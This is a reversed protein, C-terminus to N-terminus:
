WCLLYHQKPILLGIFHLLYRAFVIYALLRLERQVKTKWCREHVENTNTAPLWQLEQVSVCSAPSAKETLNTRKQLANKYNDHALLLIRERLVLFCTDESPQQLLIKDRSEAM